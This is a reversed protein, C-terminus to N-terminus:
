ATERTALSTRALRSARRSLPERLTSKHVRQDVLFAYICEFGTPNHVSRLPTQLHTM